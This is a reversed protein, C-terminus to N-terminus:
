TRVLGAAASESLTRLNQFEDFMCIYHLNRERAFYEMLEFCTSLLDYPEQKEQAVLDLLRDSLEPFVRILSSALLRMRRHGPTQILHNTDLIGLAIATRSLFAFLWGECFHRLSGPEVYLYTVVVDEVDLLRRELEFLIQTKGIKRVGVLVINSAKGRRATDIVKMLTELESERNHFYVM